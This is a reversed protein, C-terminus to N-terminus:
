ICAYDCVPVAFAVDSYAARPVVATIVVAIYKRASPKPTPKGRLLM